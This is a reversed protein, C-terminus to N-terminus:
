FLTIYRNSGLERETKSIIIELIGNNFFATVKQNIIHFPFDITRIRRRQKSSPQHKAATITLVKDEILVTIESANFDTLIAEVIWQKETEFLDIRFQSQDCFSTLPDLFYNKLWEEMQDYYVSEDDKKSILKVVGGQV